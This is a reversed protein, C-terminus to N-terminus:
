VNELREALSNLPVASSMKAKPPLSSNRSDPSFSDWLGELVESSVMYGVNNSILRIMFVGDRRLFDKAFKNVEESQRKSDHGVIGMSRLQRKIYNVQGQWFMLNWCWKFFGIVTIFVLIVLWFWVFLFIKENFLNVSLVCQVIYRHLETQRRIQFDCLTVRPFRESMMWYFKQDDHYLNPDKDSFFRSLVDLGFPLATDFFVDLLYLQGIVNVVYLIKCILYCVTLYNGYFKGYVLCCYRAFAHKVKLCCTNRRRDQRSNLYRSLQNVMYRTTKERIDAYSTRQGNIAADMIEAVNLGSRRCMVRWLVSPFYFLLAQALLIMPVWQYYSLYKKPHAPLPIQEKFPVYYTNQVWCIIDTYSKHSDTFHAPCWCKIPEGVYVKTTVVVSFIVLLTATHKRSMRDVFDDDSRFHVDKFGFLSGLFKQM